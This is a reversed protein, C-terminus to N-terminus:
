ASANMLNTLARGVYGSATTANALTASANLASTLVGAANGVDSVGLMNGAVGAANVIGSITGSAGLQETDILSQATTLSSIGSVWASSNLGLAGTVNVAVQADSIATTAAASVNFGAASNLDNNLTDLLSPTGPAAAMANDQVVLCTLSYPIWNRRKYTASFRRVVVSFSQQGFALTLEQGSQRLSDLENARSEAYPGELYGSWTLDADNRGLAQVVRAGGLLQHVVLGQEGGLNIHPPVEIGQFQVPGLTVLGYGGFLQGAAQIASLIGSM